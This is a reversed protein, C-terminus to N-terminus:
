RGGIFKITAFGQFIGVTSFCVGDSSILNKLGLYFPILTLFKFVKLTIFNSYNFIIHLFNMVHDILFHHIKCSPEHKVIISFLTEIEAFLFTLGNGLYKFFLRSVIIPHHFPIERKVGFSFQCLYFQSTKIQLYIIIHFCLSFVMGGFEQNQLFPLKFVRVRDM